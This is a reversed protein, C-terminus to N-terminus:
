MPQSSPHVEIKQCTCLCFCFDPVPTAYCGIPMLLTAIPLLTTRPVCSRANHNSLKSVMVCSFHPKPWLLTRSFSDDELDIAREQAESRTMLWNESRGECQRKRSYTTTGSPTKSHM